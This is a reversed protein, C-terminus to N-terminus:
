FLGKIKGSTLDVDVAMFAPKSPLGPMTPFEGALPYLFGAGVCARIDRISLRWGHPAGMKSGDDSLSLHTKAMNLALTNYGLDTYLKIREKALPSYDVGAAGYLRTATAEIKEEISAEPPYFFRNPVPQETAQIVARALDIAGEGGKGWADHLVAAEAGLEVALRRVLELEADTDSTFRNVAVVVPVGYAHVIGIHAALNSRCGAEVAGLNETEAAEKVKAYAMGPRLRFAGGHQKLARVTAVVVACDVNLGPTQRVVVDMLKAFGCDSGFGSESVVYDSLKRAVMAGVVSSNGHAVNAFPFGHCIVPHNETSQVLNPMLADGLLATMAGAVKLDEGTVPKGEATFGLVTRGFRARLDGLNQALSHIAATETAATISYGTQRPLGNAKGGLGVVIDRLARDNADVCRPWTVSLPDLHLPNGHTLTNDIAAAALNQASEVAHIDGTFHLNINEMPLMQSYGGGCAGGKIGFTPGKSPERLVNCARHHLLTLAQGIGLSTVTKGEGLPTPTIATVTIFKGDPGGRLRRLVAPANIKAMVRGHPLIEDDLVGLREAVEGIALLTTEQAIELDSPVPNRRTVSM